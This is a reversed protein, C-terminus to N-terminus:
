GRRGPGRVAAREGAGPPDCAAPVSREARDSWQQRWGPQGGLRAGGGAGSSRQGARRVPTGAAAHGRRRGLRHRRRGRLVGQLARGAGARGAPQVRRVAVADVDGHHRRGARARMGAAAVGARGSAPRGPVVLVRHGCHGGAGGSGAHLVGARLDSRGRQCHEPVGRRVGAASRGSAPLGPCGFRRVCGGPRGARVASRDRGARVGGLLGRADAAATSREGDGGAPQCRLVGRRVRRRRLRLRRRARLQDRGSGRGPRVARRPGLRPRGSVRLDRGQRRRGVAM